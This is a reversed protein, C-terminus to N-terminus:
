ITTANPYKRRVYDAATEIPPLAKSNTSVTDNSATGRKDIFQRQILTAVIIALAITILGKWDIM